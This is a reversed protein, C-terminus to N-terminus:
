EFVGYKVVENLCMSAEKAGSTWCLQSKYDTTKLNVDPEVIAM